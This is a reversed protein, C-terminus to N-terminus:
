HHNIITGVGTIVPNETGEGKWGETYANRGILSDDINGETRSGNERGGGSVSLGCDGLDQLYQLINWSLM